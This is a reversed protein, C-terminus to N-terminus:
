ANFDMDVHKAETGAFGVLFRWSRPPHSFALSWESEHVPEAWVIVETAKIDEVATGPDEEELWSKFM